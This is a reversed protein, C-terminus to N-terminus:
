LCLLVLCCVVYVFSAAMFLVICLGVFGFLGVVDAFCLVLLCVCFWSFLCCFLLAVIFLYVFCVFRLAFM